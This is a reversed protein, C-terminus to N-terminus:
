WYAVLYDEPSFVLQRDEPRDEEQIEFPDLRWLYNDFHYEALPIPAPGVYTTRELVERAKAAGKSTITYQYSGEGLGGTGRVECMQERKLFELAQDVVGIFPLKIREAIEYGSIYGAYYMVKVVLDSIFGLNLGTDEVSRIAKPVFENIVLESHNTAM